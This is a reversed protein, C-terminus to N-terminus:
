AVRHSDGRVRAVGARVVERLEEPEFPKEVRPNLVRELFSRAAPTFAGGTIFVMREAVQPVSDELAAHVEMGTLEPMMLDCLVVDYRAGEPSRLRELAQKASVLVDVDHERALTRRIAGSVMPEDDVVLVRGRVPATPQAVSAGGSAAPVGPGPAPPGAGQVSAGPGPSASVNTDTVAPPNTGPEAVGSTGQVTPTSTSPRKVGSTGQVTPTSTSPRKVASTGSVASATGTVAAPDTGHVAALEGTVRASVATGQAARLTLRFVSGKGLESEVAISGGMGTVYAHCLSLGLGTGVGVPKTTFFPDFIRGLVEPTMGRGTDRVEAVVEGAPGARTVLRVTHDESRGEPLAQAANILLNLFVQVLRAENGEVSPVDGYERVLRARHRLESAAMKAAADLVAHLDVAGLSEDDRRSFTKLDRVIRRVRDAGHLAERLAQTLERLRPGAEEPADALAEAEACAHELNSVIYALPNNIEHGVGAALTGVAAM